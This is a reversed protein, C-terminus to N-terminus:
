IVSLGVSAVSMTRTGVELALTCRDDRWRHATTFQSSVSTPGYFYMPGCATISHSSPFESRQHLQRGFCIAYNCKPHEFQHEAAAAGPAFSFQHDAFLYMRSNFSGCAQHGASRAVLYNVSISLM